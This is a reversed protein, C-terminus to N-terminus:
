RRLFHIYHILRGQCRWLTEFYSLDWDGMEHTYYPAPLLPTLTPENSLARIIQYAYAADDTAVSFRGGEKVIRAVEKVFTPTILRFKAHRNKPWPDPFNIWLADVSGAALYHRTTTQAEGCIIFLNDVNHNQRKSWIKRCRDFRKEIAVFLTQPEKLARAIIWDGNGSCMEVHVPGSRGLLTPLAPLTFERYEEEPLGPPVFFLPVDLLVSREQWSFPSKLDVPKM